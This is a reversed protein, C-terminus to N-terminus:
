RAAPGSRGWADREADQAEELTRFRQVGPKPSPLGGAAAFRRGLALLFAVVRLNAPDDPARWPPPVDEISRFKQVAM